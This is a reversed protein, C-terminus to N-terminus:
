PSPLEDPSVLTSALEIIIQRVRQQAASLVLDARQYLFVTRHPPPPGLRVAVIDGHALAEEVPLRTLLTVGLGHRVSEIVLPLSNVEAVVNPVRDGMLAYLRTRISNWASTVIWPLAAIDRIDRIGPLLEPAALLFLEESFLEVGSLSNDPLQLPCVAMDLTGNHLGTALAASGQEALHIQIGPAERRVRALLRLGLFQGLTPPLGISVAGAETGSLEIVELRLSDFQRLLAQARTYLRQGAETPRVGSSTRDVLRAKMEGELIALQQSLAPQAMGMIAAARSISGAEVIQVFYHLRRTEM